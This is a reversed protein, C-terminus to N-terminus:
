DTKPFQRIFEHVMVRGLHDMEESPYDDLDGCHIEEQLPLDLSAPCFHTKELGDDGVGTYGATGGDGCLDLFDANDIIFTAVLPTPAQSGFDYLASWVAGVDGVSNEYTEDFYRNFITKDQANTADRGGVILDGIEDCFAAHIKEVNASDDSNAVDFNLYKPENTCEGGKDSGPYPSPQPEDRRNMIRVKSPTKSLESHVKNAIASKQLRYSRFLFAYRAIPSAHVHWSLLLGAAAIAGKM